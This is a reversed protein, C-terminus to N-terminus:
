RTSEAPPPDPPTVNSRTRRPRRRQPRTRQKTKATAPPRKKVSSKVGKDERLRVITQDSGWLLIVKDEQIDSVTYGGVLENLGYSKTTKTAPDELIATKKDGLIITGFLKPQNKPPPEVSKTDKSGEDRASRTPNFLNGSTIIEYSVPKSRQVKKKLNKKDEDETKVSSETLIELPSSLVNTLKFVLFGAVIFLVINVIFFNRLMKPRKSKLTM